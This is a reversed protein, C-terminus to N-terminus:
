NNNIIEELHKVMEEFDEGQISHIAAGEELTDFESFMCNVCHFGYEEQLVDVIEPYEEVLVNINKKVDITRKTNSM